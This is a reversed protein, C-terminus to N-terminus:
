KFNGKKLTSVKSKAQGADSLVACEVLVHDRCGLSGGTKVDGMLEHQVLLDRILDWRSPSDIVQSLFNLNLSM